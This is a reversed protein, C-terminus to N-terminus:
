IVRSQKKGLASTKTPEQERLHISVQNEIPELATTLATQMQEKMEDAIPQFRVKSLVDIRLDIVVKAKGKIKVKMKTKDPHVTTRFSDEAIQEVTSKLIETRNKGDKIVLRKRGGSVSLVVVLCIFLLGGLIILVGKFFSILWPYNFLLWNVEESLWPIEILGGLLGVTGLFLLLTFLALVVKVLRKM